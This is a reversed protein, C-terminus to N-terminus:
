APIFGLRFPSDVATEFVEASINEVAFESQNRYVAAQVRQLLLHSQWEAELKLDQRSTSGFLQFILDLAQKVVLIGVM